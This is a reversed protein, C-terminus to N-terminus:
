KNKEYVRRSMINIESGHDVLALIPDKSDGLRVQTETTARAWYSVSYNKMEDDNKSSSAVRAEQVIKQETGSEVFACKPQYGRAEDAHSVRTEDEMSVKDGFNSFASQAFVQGIEEEEDKSICTDLMIAEATMQRKRKIVDIILEHFDRKAIGLAARLTFEIKADLIKEELISKMDTSSEIDSQLKYAPNKGRPRGILKM